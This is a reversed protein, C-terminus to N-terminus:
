HAPAHLGRNKRSVPRLPKALPCGFVTQCCSQGSAACGAWFRQDAEAILAPLALQRVVADEHCARWPKGSGCACLERRGELHEARCREVRLSGEDLRERVAAPLTRDLEELEAQLRPEGHNWGQGAPWLRTATCVEQADLYWALKGWWQRATDLTLPYPAATPGWGLCFEGNLNIHREPCWLPLRRHEPQESVTLPFLLVWMPDDVVLHYRSPTGDPQRVTAVFLLQPVQQDAEQLTIWDPDATLRLATLAPTNMGETM